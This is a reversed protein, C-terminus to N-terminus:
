LEKIRRNRNIALQFVGTLQRHVAERSHNKVACALAKGAYERIIYPNKVLEKLEYEISDYNPICIAADQEKLYQYGTQEEWCIAMVACGSSLLDIIKTSFSYKTALKNAKDYSEVHLAIDTHNYVEILEKPTVGGKVYISFNENLVRKQAETLTDLTYINLVIKQGDRNIQKLARGLAALTKWRNCYLRGAYVINIPQNVAHIHEPQHNSTCKYLVSTPIGYKRNYLLSQSKSHAFYHSYIDKNREFMKTTYWRRLWFLPSVSYCDFGIENDGTFALMPKNCVSHIIREFRLFKPTAMRPSFIIDPDFNDIFNKIAIKDYRGACWIADRIMMMSTHITTSLKKLYGYIGQHQVMMQSNSNEKVVISGARKGVVSSLMQRDTIQFYKDCIKNNPVGPSLYIEAFEADFNTFWNTLVGNGFIYDNWVEDALILIRM